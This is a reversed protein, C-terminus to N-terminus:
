VATCFPKAPANVIAQAEENIRLTEVREAVREEFGTAYTAVSRAIASVDALPLPPICRSENIASLALVMEDATMDSRRMRGAVSTLTTNREGEPIEDGGVPPSLREATRVLGPPLPAIRRVNGSLRYSVVQGGDLAFKSGPLMAVHGNGLLEIGEALRVNTPVAASVSFHYHTGGHPTTVALTPPLNMGLAAVDGNRHADVDVVVEGSREGCLLAFGHCKSAKSWRRIQEADRSAEGGDRWKVWPTKHLDCPV